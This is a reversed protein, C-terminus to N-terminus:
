FFHFGQFTKTIVFMNKFLNGSTFILSLSQSILYSIMQQIQLSCIKTTFALLHLWTVVVDQVDSPFAGAPPYWQTDSAVKYQQHKKSM